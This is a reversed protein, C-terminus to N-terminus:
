GSTAISGLLTRLLCAFGPLQLEFPERPINRCAFLNLLIYLKGPYAFSFFTYLISYVQLKKMSVALSQASTFFYRYTENKISNELIVWTKIVCIFVSDVTISDLLMKWLHVTVSDFFVIVIMYLNKSLVSCYTWSVLCFCM